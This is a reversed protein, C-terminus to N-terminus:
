DERNPLGPIVDILKSFFSRSKPFVGMIGVVVLAAATLDSITGDDGSEIMYGGGAIALVALTMRITDVTKWHKRSM